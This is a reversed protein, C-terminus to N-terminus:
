ALLEKMRLLLKRTSGELGRKLALRYEVALRLGEGEGVEGCGAAGGGGGGGGGGSSGGAAEGSGSGSGGSGGSSTDATAGPAGAAGGGGSGSNSEAAAPADAQLGALLRTDEQITTPFGKYLVTALGVLAKMVLAEHDHSLPKGWDGLEEAGRAKVAKRDESLMVRVAALLPGQVPPDGGISVVVPWAAAGGQEGSGSAGGGDSSSDQGGGTAGAKHRRRGQQQGQQQQQQQQGQQQDPALLGMESLKTRQWTKLGDSPRPTVSTVGVFQQVAGLVFDVDFPFSFADFPNDGPVFGYSLLLDANPHSGYRLLLPAGAAVMTVNGDDDARIEANSTFSHNAMDVLPVMGHGPSRRFGFSRSMALALGWRLLAETVVAGGFPDAGPGESPLAALVDAAFAAAFHAQGGADAALQPHQLQALAPPPLLMGVPPPPVGPAIGPLHRIYPGRAVGSGGSASDGGGGGTASDAAADAAEAELRYAILQLAMKFQWAGRGAGGAAPPVRAMLSALRPDSPDTDRVQLARPVCMIREGSALDKSAVLQRDIRGREDRSYVLRAGDVHGGHACIWDALETDVRPAAPPASAAAAAAAAARRCRRVPGGIVPRARSASGHGYRLLQPRNLQQM